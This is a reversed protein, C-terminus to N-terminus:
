QVSNVICVQKMKLFRLVAFTFPFCSNHAIQLILLTQVEYTTM